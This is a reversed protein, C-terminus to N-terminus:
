GVGMSRMVAHVADRMSLATPLQTLSPARRAGLEVVVGEERSRISRMGFPGCGNPERQERREGQPPEAGAWGGL